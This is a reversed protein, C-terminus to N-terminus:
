VLKWQALSGTICTRRVRGNPGYYLKANLHLVPLPTLLYKNVCPHWFGGRVVKTPRHIKIHLAWPKQGLVPIHIPECYQAQSWTITVVLCALLRAAQSQGEWQTLIWTGAAWQIQGWKSFNKSQLWHSNEAACILSLAQSPASFGLKAAGGLGRFIWDFALLPM